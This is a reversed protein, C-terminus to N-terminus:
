EGGTTDDRGTEMNRWQRDIKELQLCRISTQGNLMWAFVAHGGSVYAKCFKSHTSVTTRREGMNKEKMKHPKMKYFIGDYRTAFRGLKIGRVMLLDIRGHMLVLSFFLVSIVPLSFFDWFLTRHLIRPHASTCKCALLFIRLSDMFFLLLNVTIIIGSRPLWVACQKNKNEKTWVISLFIPGVSVVAVLSNRNDNHEVNWSSANHRPM